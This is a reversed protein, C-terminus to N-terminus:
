LQRVRVQTVGSLWSIGWVVADMRDPSKEGVKGTYDCMQAELKPFYGVHHVLGRKYLDAIPEARTIKGKSAHVAEFKVNIQRERASNQVVLDVMEGGNNVEGIVSDCMNNAYVKVSEDGWEQPHLTGSHDGLIYYHGDIGQACHAIGCEDSKENATASPDISVCSRQLPPASVVRYREITDIDWLAGHKKKAHHQQYEANFSFEGMSIRQARLFEASIWEEHLAEGPKRGLVDDEEALARLRVVDWKEGTRKAHELIRYALDGVCWLSMTVVIAGEGMLTPLLTDTYFSYIKEQMTISQAEIMNKHPDDINLVHAGSGTPSGNISTSVYIGGNDTHFRNASQSDASLTVNFCNKYRQSSVLNRVDRGLETSLDDGYSVNMFQKNPNRGMYWAPFKRSVIESKTHRRPALIMLRKIEGREVSELKEAILHHHQGLKFDPKVYQEFPILNKRAHRRALLEIAAQKKTIM